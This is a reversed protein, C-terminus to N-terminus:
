VQYLKSPSIIPLDTQVGCLKRLEAVAKRYMYSMNDKDFGMVRSAEALTHGHFITLILVQRHSDELLHIKDSIDTAVAKDIPDISGKDKIQDALTLHDDEVYKDLEDLSQLSPNDLASFYDPDQGLFTAIEQNNEPERGHKALFAVTAKQRETQKESIWSPKRIIDERDRLYHSIESYIKYTAFTSFKLGRYPDFKDIAKLLGIMGEQILDEIETKHNHFNHQVVSRVLGKHLQVLKERLNPSRLEYFLYWIQLDTNPTTTTQVESPSTAYSTTM